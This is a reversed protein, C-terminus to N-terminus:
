KHPRCAKAFTPSHHELVYIKDKRQKSEHKQHEQEPHWKRRPRDLCAYEADGVGHLNWTQPSEYVPVFDM